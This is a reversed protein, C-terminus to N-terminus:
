KLTSLVFLMEKKILELEDERTTTRGKLERFVSADGYKEDYLFSLIPEILIDINSPTTLQKIITSLNSLQIVEVIQNVILKKLSDYGEPYFSNVKILDEFIEMTNTLIFDILQDKSISSSKVKFAIRIVGLILVLVLLSIITAYSQM